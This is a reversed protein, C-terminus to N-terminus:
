LSKEKEILDYVEIRDKLEWSSFNNSMIGCETDKFVELVDEKLRKLSSVEGSHVISDQRFVKMHAGVKLKGNQVICGAVIGKSVAFINEVQAKGIVEEDYDTEVLQIMLEQVYDILDYIVKFHAINVNIKHKVQEADYSDQNFSVITANSVSALNIDGTTVQGIHAEIINLQVKKQPINMLANLVANITGESDTKLILNIAKTRIHSDQNLPQDLTLRTNLKRYDRSYQEKHKQYDSLQRKASKEDSIANFLSGSRLTMEMGFVDVISSPGASYIRNKKCDIISRVKFVVQGNSIYDGINLIGNQVLLRAVSGQKKELYSDLVTGSAEGFCNARLNQQDSIDIITSLLQDINIEKLASLEVVTIDGGLDDTLINYNTLEQKINLINTSKKDIKNIAIIFPINDEQLDQISEISQKQLGDDAAIVVVAVDTIQMSRMRMDYFAEHGPTDLIIIPREESNYNVHVEKAKVSQTIGGSELRTDDSKCIKDVLTTKGHDVHGFVTVIPTRRQYIDSLDKDNKLNSKDLVNTKRKDKYTHVKIDYQSAISAAMNIDIVQNITVSIGRLFLSKIIETAPISLYNALEQISVPHNLTIERIDNKDNSAQINNKLPATVPQLYDTSKISKKHNEKKKNPKPPRMLSLEVNESKKGVAQYRQTINEDDDNIHIKSRIKKRQKIKNKKVELPDVIKDYNKQRKEARNLVLSNIENVMVDTISSVPEVPDASKHKSYYIIKPSELNLYEAPADKHAQLYIKNM